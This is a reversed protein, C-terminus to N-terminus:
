LMIRHSKIQGVQASTGHDRLEHWAQEQATGVTALGGELRGAQLGRQEQRDVQHVESLLRRKAVAASPIGVSLHSPRCVAVINCLHWSRMELSFGVLLLVARVKGAKGAPRDM